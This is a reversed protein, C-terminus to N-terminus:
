KKYFYFMNTYPYRLEKNKFLHALENQTNIRKKPKNQPYFFFTYNNDKLLRLFKLLTKKNRENKNFFHWEIVGAKFSFEKPNKLFYEIIPFEGGEIDCKFGDFKALKMVDKINMCSVTETGGVKKDDYFSSAGYFNGEKKIEMKKTEDAIVASNHSIIKNGLKNLEINRLAWKFKEKEPEFMFIKKNKYRTLEIASDGIYGGLDLINNLNNLRYYGNKELLMKWGKNYFKSNAYKIFFNRKGFLEYLDLKTKQLFGIPGFAHKPNTFVLSYPLKILNYIPRPLNQKLKNVILHFM